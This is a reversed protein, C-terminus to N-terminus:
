KFANRNLMSNSPLKTTKLARTSSKVSPLSEIIDDFCAKRNQENVLSKEAIRIDDKLESIEAKRKEIESESYDRAYVLTKHLLKKEADSLSSTDVITHDGDKQYKAVQNLKKSLIAVKDTASQSKNLSNLRVNFDYFSNKPFDLIAM